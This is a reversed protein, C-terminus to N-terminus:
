PVVFIFAKEFAEELRQSEVRIVALSPVIKKNVLTAVTFVMDFRESGVGLFAVRPV